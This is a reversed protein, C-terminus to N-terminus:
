PFVARISAGTCRQYSGTAASVQYPGVLDLVFAHQSTTGLSSSWYHGANGASVVTSSNVPYYGVYPFFITRGNLKSTALAGRVGNQVVQEWTCNKILEIQETATPMRWKGGWNARAADDEGDLTTKNDTAGDVAASADVAYKSVLGDAHSYQYNDWSFQTKAQTEGWAFYQGYAEASNSGINCTAWKTRSPLGLDVWEHGNEVGDLPSGDANEIMKWQAYLKLNGKTKIGQREVYSIGSGDAQTNWSTFVHHDRTFENDALSTYSDFDTIVQPAMYGEGGNADYTIIAEKLIFDVSDISSIEMTFVVEGGSHVRMMRISGNQAFLGLSLLCLGIVFSLKKMLNKM